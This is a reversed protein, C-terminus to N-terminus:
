GNLVVIAVNLCVKGLKDVASCIPKFKDSYHSPVGCAAFM